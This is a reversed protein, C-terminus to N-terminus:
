ICHSYHFFCGRIYVRVYLDRAAHWAATEYDMMVTDQSLPINMDMSAACLLSSDGYSSQQKYPLLSYVLPCINGNTFANNHVVPLLLIIVFLFNWDHVIHRNFVAINLQRDHRNSM